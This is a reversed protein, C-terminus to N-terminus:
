RADFHVNQSPSFVAPPYSFCLLSPTHHWLCHSFLVTGPSARQARVTTDHLTTPAPKERPGRESAARQTESASPFRHRLLWSSCTMSVMCRTIMEEASSSWFTIARYGKLLGAPLGWYSHELTAPFRFYAKIKIPKSYDQTTFPNM